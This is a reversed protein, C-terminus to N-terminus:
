QAAPLTITFQAGGGPADSVTVQGGHAHVTQRVLALGLGTGGKRTTVYPEFIRDKMEDPVGPGHDRVTVEIGGASRRAAIAIGTGDTFAVANRVVNEVARRLPEYHGRVSLGPEVNRSVLCGDDSVGAAVRELLDGVDVEAEPGEPLRGFEAFEAAMRELRATEDRLIETAEGAGPLQRLALRAASLPGRMEHAVSRATERFATLRAQEVEQTRVRDLAEALQRVADRLAEFEPAGRHHGDPLSEGREVRGVWDVLEEVPASVYRAWRRALALSAVVVIGAVVLIGAGMLAAASRTVTEAQHARRAQAAITNTHTRLALRAASDLPTTDLAAILAGGSQVVQDFAAGPGRGLSISRSQVALVLLAGAAPLIGLGVIALFLRRHFPLSM